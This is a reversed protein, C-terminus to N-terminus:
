QMIVPYLSTDYTYFNETGNYDFFRKTFDRAQTDTFFATASGLQLRTPTTDFHHWGLGDPDVLSWRHRTPTGPIREIPRNPIGSRTLMIESIAYFNFCNGGRDRLARYADEYVTEGGGIAQAYSINTIVWTHIAKVKDLQTMGDKIIDVLVKDIQEHVYDVDVNVVMVTETIVTELGTLDKVSYIVYYEGVENHNVRSSDIQLENTLDRGFDDRATIGQRYIIPSGLRSVITDTGEIVPQSTNLRIILKSEYIASNGHEDTIRVRVNQTTHARTNPVEVFEISVVESEDEVNEVFDEPKVSEGIRITVDVPDATPAARDTGFWYYWVAFVIAALVMLMLLGAVFKKGSSSKKNLKRDAYSHIDPRKNHHPNPNQHREYKYLVNQLAAQQSPTLDTKPYAYSQQTEPTEAQQVHRNPDVSLDPRYVSKKVRNQNKDKSSRSSILKM